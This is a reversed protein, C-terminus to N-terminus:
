VKLEVGFDVYINGSDYEQVTASAFHGVPIQFSSDETIILGKISSVRTNVMGTNILVKGSGGGFHVTVQALPIIDGGATTPLDIVSGTTETTVNNIIPIHIM